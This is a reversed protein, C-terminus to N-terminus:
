QMGNFIALFTIVDSSVGAPIASAPIEALAAPSAGNSSFIKLLGASADAGPVYVYIYGSQGQVLVLVPPFTAKILPLFLSMVIGGAVYVAPSLSIALSGIVFYKNGAVFSSREDTLSALAIANAM